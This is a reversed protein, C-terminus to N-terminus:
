IAQYVYLELALPYQTLTDAEFNTDDWDRVWGLFASDSYTYGTSSLRVSYQGEHLALPRAFQFSVFGHYYDISLNDSGLTQMEALTLSRSALIVDESNVISITFTGAPSLYKCLHLRVREIMKDTTVTFEQELTTRLESVVLRM